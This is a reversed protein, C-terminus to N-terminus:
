WGSAPSKTAPAFTTDTVGNVIGNQAGLARRQHVLHRNGCRHLPLDGSVAPQGELRYLITVLQAPHDRQQPRLTAAWGGDM